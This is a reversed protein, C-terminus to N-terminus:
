SHFCNCAEKLGAIGVLEVDAVFTDEAAVAVAMMCDAVEVVVVPTHVPVEVVLIDKKEAVAVIKGVVVVAKKHHVVAAMKDAIVVPWKGPETSRIREPAQVRIKRREFHFNHLRAPYRVTEVM